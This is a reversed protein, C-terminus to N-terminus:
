TGRMLRRMYTMSSAIANRFEVATSSAAITLRRARATLAGRLQREAQATSSAAHQGTRIAEGTESAWVQMVYEIIYLRVAEVGTVGDKLISKLVRVNVKRLETDEIGGDAGVTANLIANIRKLDSLSRLENLDLGLSRLTDADGRQYALGAAL